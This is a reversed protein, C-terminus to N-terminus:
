CRVWDLLLSTAIATWSFTDSEKTRLYEILEKKQAFLPLLHLVADDQSSVSFESPIFRRVGAQVAADVLNKQEGFGGAGLTSVVVDQGAFAKHLDDASFDSKHVAVGAPFTAQSETRSVVTVTFQPNALLGRLVICGVSGSAQPDDTCVPVQPRLQSSSSPPALLLQSSSPPAPLLEVYM